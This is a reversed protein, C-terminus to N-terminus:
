LIRILDSTHKSPLPHAQSPPSQPPNQHHLLYTHIVEMLKDKANAITLVTLSAYYLLTVPVSIMLAGILLLNDKPPLQSVLFVISAMWLSPAAWSLLWKLWGRLNVLFTVGLVLGCFPAALACAYLLQDAPSLHGVQLVVLQNLTEM